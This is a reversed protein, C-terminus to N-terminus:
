HTHKLLCDALREIDERTHLANLVIRQIKKGNPDPYAFSSIVINDDFLKEEDISAPLIFVPLEPHYKIGPMNKVLSSFLVTNMRLKDRQVSYLAQGKIFAYLFAPSAATGATYAALMRLKGATQKTCSVAGGIMNCAKSLSYTLIYEVDLKPLSSAIGEGREGLLGFGHSDDVICIDAPSEDLFSFDTITANLVNVADTSIIIKSENNQVPSQIAPHANPLHHVHQHNVQVSMQGATFGSSVLVTEESGTLSSLLVEAEEFLSLRTNSIRSSPFLLGYKDIGEKVLANFEPVHSMGLYSYGSFFLCEKGDAIATRGPQYSLHHINM